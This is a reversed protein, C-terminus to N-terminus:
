LSVKIENNYKIWDVGLFEAAMRELLESQLHRKRYPSDPLEGPEDAEPHTLDHALIAEESLGDRETSYQEFLEHLAILFQYDDSQQKVAQIVTEDFESVFYDGASAYRLKDRFQISIDRM